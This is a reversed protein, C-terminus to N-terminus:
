QSGNKPRLRDYMNTGTSVRTRVTEASSVSEDRPVATYAERIQRSDARRRDTSPWYETALLSRARKRFDFDLSEPAESSPTTTRKRVRYSPLQGDTLFGSDTPPLSVSDQVSRSSSRPAVSPAAIATYFEAPDWEWSPNDSDFATAQSAFPLEQSSFTQEEQERPTRGTERAREVFFDGYNQTWFSSPPTWYKNSYIERFYSPQSQLALRFYSLLRRIFPGNEAYYSPVFSYRLNDLAEAPDEMNRDIRDVLSEQVYRLVQLQRPTLSRPASIASEKNKLLFGMTRALDLGSTGMQRATKEIEEETVEPRLLSASVTDRYLQMITSLVSDPTFTNDNTFPALLLLLVRTNASLRSTVAAPIADSNSIIGYFNSLNNFAQNLNVTNVGTINVQLMTQAGSRFVTVNPAENVFLRLTQKLAEYNHQGLPVTSPLANLFTNLITQNSLSNIDTGRISESQAARIDDVLTQLNTQINSSNYKHVRILLDSYLPGVESKTIAGMKVLEQLLAVIKSPTDSRRPPAVANELAILKNAAPQRRFKQISELSRGAIISDIIRDTWINSPETLLASTVISGPANQKPREM